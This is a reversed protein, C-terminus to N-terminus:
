QLRLSLSSLVLYLFLSVIESKKVRRTCLEVVVVVVVVEVWYGSEERRNLINSECFTIENAEKRRRREERNKRM